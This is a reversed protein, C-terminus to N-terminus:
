RGNRHGRGPEDVSCLPSRGSSSQAALCSSARLRRQHVRPFTSTVRRQAYGRILGRYAAFRAQDSDALGQYLPHPTVVSDQRGLANARHSSWRYDGPVSAMSARVPNLEIYRQCALLYTDAEILSSRFRGEFLGGTRGYTRNVHQVYRQGVRKMVASVGDDRAATMLLHLHNTILVYAHVAVSEEAAVAVLHDLFFQRDADEFFVAAQDIGRLIM